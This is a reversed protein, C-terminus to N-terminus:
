LEYDKRGARDKKFAGFDKITRMQEYSFVPGDVCVRYGGCECSGCAGRGCKMYRELSLYINNLNLYLELIQASNLLMKEPGCAVAKSNESIGYEKILDTVIGRHGKSGDETAIYTKGVKRFRDELIIESANKAGLFSIIDSGEIQEAVLALPAIGTGGGIIYVRSSSSLEKMPFGNGYPGRIWVRDREKLEFLATTFTKRRRVTIGLPNLYSLSFPKEAVGPIWAFIFQGPIAEISEDFLFTRINESEERIETIKLPKHNM